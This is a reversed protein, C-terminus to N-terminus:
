IQTKDKLVDIGPPVKGELLELSAGGGTSIHTMKQSLGLSSVVEATSGGGVITTAMDLKALTHAIRATGYSFPEWEFVGMPGNWLVTRSPKLADAFLSSTNPGIDMIHWGQPINSIEVTRRRSSTSFSEAVVVDVPLKLTVGSKQATHTFRKAFPIKEEEM